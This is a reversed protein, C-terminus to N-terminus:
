WVRARHRRTWRQGKAVLGAVADNERRSERCPDRTGRGVEVSIRRRGRRPEAVLM